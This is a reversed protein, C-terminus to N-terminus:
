KYHYIINKQHKEMIYEIAKAEKKVNASQSNSSLNGLLYHKTLRNEIKPNTTAISMFWDWDESPMGNDDFLNYYMKLLTM